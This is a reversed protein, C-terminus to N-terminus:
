AARRNMLPAFPNVAILLIGFFMVVAGIWAIPALMWGDEKFFLGLM